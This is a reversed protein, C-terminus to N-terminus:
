SSITSTTRWRRDRDYETVLAVNKRATWDFGAFRQALRREVDDAHQAATAERSGVEM